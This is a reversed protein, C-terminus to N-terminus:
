IKIKSNSTNAHNNITLPYEGEIGLKIFIKNKSIEIFGQPGHADSHKTFDFENEINFLIHKVYNTNETSIHFNKVFKEKWDNQNEPDYYTAMDDNVQDLIFNSWYFAPKNDRTTEISEIRVSFQEPVYHELNKLHNQVNSGLDVYVTKLSNSLNINHQEIIDNIKQANIATM